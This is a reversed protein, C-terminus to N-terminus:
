ASWAQSTRSRIWVSNRRYSNRKFDREPRQPRTDLVENVQAVPRQKEDSRALRLAAAAIELPDNGEEM